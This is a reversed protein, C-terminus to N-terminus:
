RKARRKSFRPRRGALPKARRPQTAQVLVAGLMARVVSDENGGENLLLPVSLRGAWSRWVAVAEELPLAEELMMSYSRERHRLVLRVQPNEAGAGGQPAENMVLEAAVGEYANLSIRQLVMAGGLRATVVVSRDKLDLRGRLPMSARVSAKDRCGDLINAGALGAPSGEFRLNRQDAANNRTAGTNATM